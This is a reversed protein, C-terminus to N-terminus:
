EAKPPFRKKLAEKKNDLKSQLADKQTDKGQKGPSKADLKIDEGERPIEFRTVRSKASYANWGQPEKMTVKIESYELEGKSADVAPFDVEGKSDVAVGRKIDGDMVRIAEEEERYKYDVTFEAELPKLVTGREDTVTFLRATEEAM